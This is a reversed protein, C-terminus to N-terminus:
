ELDRRSALSVYSQFARFSHYGEKIKLMEVSTTAKDSDKGFVTTFLSNSSISPFTVSTVVKFSSFMAIKFHRLLRVLKLTITERINIM